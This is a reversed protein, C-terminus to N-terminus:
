EIKPLKGIVELNTSAEKIYKMKSWDLYDYCHLYEIKKEDM